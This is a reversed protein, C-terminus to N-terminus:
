IRRARCPESICPTLQGLGSLGQLPVGQLGGSLAIPDGAPMARSLRPPGPPETTTSGQDPATTTVGGGSGDTTSTGGPATTTTGDPASTSPSTSPSTSTTAGGDGGSTTTPGGGGGPSTTPTPTTTTSPDGPSTTDPTDPVTTSPVTPAPGGDPDIYTFANQALLVTGASNSRLTVDVPGAQSRPPAVVIIWTSSHHVLQGPQDGFWVNVM